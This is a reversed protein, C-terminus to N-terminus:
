IRKSRRREAVETFRRHWGASLIFSAFSRLAAIHRNVSTASLRRDFRIYHIFAQVDTEQLRAVFPGPKKLEGRYFAGFARLAYTYTEITAEARGRGFLHNEFFVLAEEWSQPAPVKSPINKEDLTEPDKEVM